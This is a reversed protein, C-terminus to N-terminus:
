NVDRVNANMYVPRSMSVVLSKPVVESVREPVILLISVVLESLKYKKREYNTKGPLRFNKQGPM